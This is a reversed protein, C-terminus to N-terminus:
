KQECKGTANADPLAHRGDLGQAHGFPHNWRRDGNGHQRAAAPQPSGAHTRAGGRAGLPVIRRERRDHVQTPPLAPLGIVCYKPLTMGNEVVTMRRFPASAQRAVTIATTRRTTPLLREQRVVAAKHQRDPPRPVLPEIWQRRLAPMEEGKFYGDTPWPPSGNASSAGEAQEGHRGTAHRDHGVNHREHAVILHHEYRCRGDARQLRGVAPAVASTAMLPCGPRDAFGAPRPNTAAATRDAAAHGGTGQRPRAQGTSTARVAPRPSWAPIATARDLETLNASCVRM